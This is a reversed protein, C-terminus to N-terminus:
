KIAKKEGKGQNVKERKRLIKNKQGKVFVSM